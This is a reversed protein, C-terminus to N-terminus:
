ILCFFYYSVLLDEVWYKLGESFFLKVIGVLKLFYMNGNFLFMRDYKYCIKNIVNFNCFFNLVMIYIEFCRDVLGVIFKLFWIYWIRYIGLLM